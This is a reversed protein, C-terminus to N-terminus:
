LNNKRPVPTSQTITQFYLKTGATSALRSIVMAQDERVALGPPPTSKSMGPRDLDQKNICHSIKYQGTDV